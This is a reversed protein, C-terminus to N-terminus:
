LENLRIFHLKTSAVFPFKPMAIDARVHLSVRCADTFIKFISATNVQTKVHNSVIESSNNRAQRWSKEKTKLVVFCVSRHNSISSPQFKLSVSYQRECNFSTWRFWVNYM